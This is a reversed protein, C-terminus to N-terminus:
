KFAQNSSELGTQATADNNWAAFQHDSLIRVISLEMSILCKSLKQANNTTWKKNIQLQQLLINYKQNISTNKTQLCLFACLIYGLITSCLRSSKSCLKLCLATIKFTVSLRMISLNEPMIYRVRSFSSCHNHLLKHPLCHANHDKHFHHISLCLRWPIFFQLCHLKKVFYSLTLKLCHIHRTFFSEITPFLNTFFFLFGSIFDFDNSYSLTHLFNIYHRRQKVKGAWPGGPSCPCCPRGPCCTLVLLM